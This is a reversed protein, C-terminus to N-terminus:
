EGVVYEFVLFGTALYVVDFVALFRLWPGFATLEERVLVEQSVQVAALIVPFIIPFVLISLLVERSPSAAVMAAMVTGVAAFGALGMVVVIALLLLRQSVPFNFFILFAATTILGTLLLFLWNGLFKGLFFIGRDVPSLVIGYLSSEETEMQFSQNLRIMGPFLLAVWLIGPSAERTAQSGPEFAVQFIILILLGFFLTNRFAHRSRYEIRLDKIALTWLQSLHKM